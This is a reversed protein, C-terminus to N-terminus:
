EYEPGLEDLLEPSLSEFFCKKNKYHIEEVRSSFDKQFDEWGIGEAELFRVSDVSILTGTSAPRDDIKANVPNAFEFLSVGFDERRELQLKLPSKDIQNNGLTAHVLFPKEINLSFENPIFDTYKFSYRNVSSVMKSLKSITLWDLLKEVHEKFKNWGPYKTGYGIGINRDGIVLIVDDWLMRITPQYQLNPDMERVQHPLESIPTKEITKIEGFLDRAGGPLLDSFGKGASFRLEFIADVIINEKLRVPLRPESM